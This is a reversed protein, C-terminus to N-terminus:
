FGVQLQLTLRSNDQVGDPTDIQNWYELFGKANEQIYYGINLTLEDYQDQGDSQEYSDYRILPVWGPKGSKTRFTHYAQISMAVNENEGVVSGGQYNDDTAQVYGGSIRTSDMDVQFDFGTRSYDIPLRDNATGTVGNDKGSWHFAGIMISDTIDYAARLAIGSADEGEVNKPAGTYSVSYFLREIVRGTLTVNQRTDRLRDQSNFRQDIISPRGRTLRLSSRLFSYPDSEFVQAWSMQVNIADSHRYALKATSVEAIFDNEDEAEIALFGSFNDDIAGTVFVEVEQIARLNTDGPDKKDYPRATLFTSVLSRLSEAEMASQTGEKIESELRYGREKFARGKANLQPWATHCSSCKKDHKAAFAPVASATQMWLIGTIGIAASAIINYHFKM